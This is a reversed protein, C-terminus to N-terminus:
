DRIVSVIRSVRIVRIIKIIRIVSIVRIVKVIRFGLLMNLRFLMVGIIGISFMSVKNYLAGCSARMADGNV